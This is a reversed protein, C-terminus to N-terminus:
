GLTSDVSYLFAIAEELSNVARHRAKFMQTVMSDLYRIPNHEEAADIIWGLKPHTYLEVRGPSKNVEILKALHTIRFDKVTTFDQVVHVLAGEGEDLMQLVPKASRAAELDEETYTQPYTVLIIRKELYWSINPYNVM